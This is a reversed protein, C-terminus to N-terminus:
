TSSMPTWTILEAVYIALFVILFTLSGIVKQKLNLRFNSVDCLSALLVIILFAYAFFFPAIFFNQAGNGIFGVFGSIQNNGESIITNTVLDLFNFPNSQIFSINYVKIGVIPNFGGSIFISLHKFTTNWIISISLPIICSFIFALIWKVINQFKKYPIIFFLLSILAYTPKTLALALTLISIILIHIPNIKNKSLALNLFVAIILFSLDITLSDASISSAIFITTPMLALLLLTHKLIPIIKIAFYVLIIYILLNIIRCLYMINLVSFNFINGVKMVLANALYPLFPYSIITTSSLDSITTRKDHIHYNMGDKIFYTSLTEPLMIEATKPFINGESVDWAKFFHASEDPVASPPAFMTFILGIILSLFLFTHEIKITKNTIKNIM